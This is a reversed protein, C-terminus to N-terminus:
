REAVGGDGRRWERRTLARWYQYDALTDGYEAAQDHAVDTWKAAAEPSASCLTEVAARVDDPVEGWLVRAKAAFAAGQALDARHGDAIRRLSDLVDPPRAGTYAAALGIGAWLDGRRHPPFGAVVRGVADPDACAHFWLARGVGQDRVSAAPGRAFREVRQEYLVPVPRFFAQHFGWGDWVLWRPLGRAGSVGFWPRMRLRAYAWGAGVHVLHFHRRGPGELLGAVRRGRTGTLVDLLTRSMAAGEHAFGALAAPAGAPGLPGRGTALGTNYGAAFAGIVADLRERVDPDGTAHGTKDLRITRDDLVM